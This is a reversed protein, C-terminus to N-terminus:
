RSALEASLTKAIRIGNKANCASSSGIAHSSATGYSSILCFGYTTSQAVLPPPCKLQNSSPPPLHCALGTLQGDAPQLHSSSLPRPQSKTYATANRFAMARSTSKLLISGGAGVDVPGCPPCWVGNTKSGIRRFSCRGPLSCYCLTNHALCTRESLSSAYFISRYVLWRRSV